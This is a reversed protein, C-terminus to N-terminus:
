NIQLECVQVVVLALCASDTIVLRQNRARGKTEIIGVYHVDIGVVDIEVELSQKILVNDLLPALLHLIVIMAAAKLQVFVAQLLM